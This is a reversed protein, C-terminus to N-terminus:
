AKPEYLKGETGCPGNESRVISAYQCDQIKDEMRGTILHARDITPVSPHMCRGTRMNQTLTLAFHKCDKCLKEM